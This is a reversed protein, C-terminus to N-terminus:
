RADDVRTEPGVRWSCPTWPTRASIWWPWHRSQDCRFREAVAHAPVTVPAMAKEHSWREVTIHSLVNRELRDATGLMHFIKQKILSKGTCPSPWTRRHSTLAWLLHRRFTSVQRDKTMVATPVHRAEGQQNSGTPLLGSRLRATDVSVVTVFLQICVDASTHPTAGQTRWVRCVTAPSTSHFCCPTV